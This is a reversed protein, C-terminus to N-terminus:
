EKDLKGLIEPTVQDFTLLRRGRHEKLFDRADAESELPVLEHGMPGLVDSGIVFYARRADIRTLGYFETVWLAALADSRHTTDYKQPAAIFKFFDKAGDFFHAHGDKYVVVALWNPYKSVLMGCVPCLDMAGPKPVLPPAALALPLWMVAALTQLLRRRFVRSM